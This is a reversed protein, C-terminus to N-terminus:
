PACDLVLATLNDLGGQANGKLLLQRCSDEATSADNLIQCIEEDEMSSWLGDTCLLIRDKNRFKFTVIDPQIEKSDGLYRTIQNQLPHFEADEPSVLGLDVLESLVSHDTTLQKLIGNRLLYARSDGVNAIHITKNVVLAAVLTTGMNRYAARLRGKLYIQHSTAIISNTLACVRPDSKEKSGLPKRLYEEYVEPLLSTALRSAVNGARHGGMGDAVMFLKHQQDINFADENSPRMRGVSTSGFAIINCPQKVDSKTSKHAEAM